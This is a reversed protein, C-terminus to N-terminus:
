SKLKAPETLTPMRLIVSYVTVSGKPRSYKKLCGGQAEATRHKGTAFGHLGRKYIWCM